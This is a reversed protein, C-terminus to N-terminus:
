ETQMLVPFYTKLFGPPDPAIVAGASLPDSVTLPHEPTSAAAGLATGERLGTDGALLLQYTSDGVAQIEVLYQGGQEAQFGITDM